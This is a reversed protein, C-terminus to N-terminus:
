SSTRPEHPPSPHMPLTRASPSPVQSLAEMLKEVQIPKSVYADMGAALYHERDGQMTNATMAIIYPREGGPWQQHIRRTSELGDMEPMEVDMLVVDYAQRQLAELVELGNNAVDVRYGLRKFIALAVRQNVLNDEALLLRLPHRQAMTPDITKLRRRSQRQTPAQGLSQALMRSLHTVKVPKSLCATLQAAKTAVDHDGMSTLMVLPLTNYGPERHIARALTLGDMGPMQMDLVAIDFPIGQKLLQLAEQGSAAAHVHMDWSVAQLTLIRRNTANDDVILLRKGGLQVLNDDGPDHPSEPVIQATITVHFTAGHGPGDSEVWMTGGMLESLRKSIALGLGTGGYQRTNSADVQSFSVFLRDHRDAPIGIGTDQVAVHVTYTDEDEDHPHATGSVVIEGRATFKVANSLLNVVIQRLRTVDGIIATPCAETVYSVLELGKDAAQPALLEIADELCQRVEFPQAELELKGAEIKSYDLIDNIITLLSDSSSRVTEVFELQEPSLTTDLLLSTMGIVGNMPTRIEHSMTALFQSKARNAAEAQDRAEALIAETHKQETANHMTVLQGIVGQATDRLPSLNVTYYQMGSALHLALDVSAEVEPAYQELQRFEGALLSGVPQGLVQADASAVLHRAAPNVDLIRHQTDLVMVGEHMNEILTERAIPVVDSTHVHRLSWAMWAGGLSFFVMMMYPLPVLM